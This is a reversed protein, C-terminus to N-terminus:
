SIQLDRVADEGLFDYLAEKRVIYNKNKYTVIGRQKLKHLETATTERTLGVLSAFLQHTISLYIQFKGPVIEKGYRNMLFFLTHAISDQANSQQLASLRLLAGSFATAYYALLQETAAPHAALFKHLAEREFLGVECETLAEFYFSSYQNRYFLWPTPLPEGPVNLTVIREEGSRIINYVKIVGSVVYMGFRPVEGQYILISGKAYRRTQSSIFFPKLESLQGRMM